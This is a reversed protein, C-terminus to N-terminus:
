QDRQFVMIEGPNIGVPGRREGTIVTPEAGELKFVAAVKYKAPNFHWMAVAAAAGLLLGAFLATIWRSKLARLLGITIPVPAVTRAFGPVIAAGGQPYPLMPVGSGNGGAIGPSATHSPDSPASVIWSPSAM